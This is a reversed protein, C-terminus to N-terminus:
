ALKTCHGDTEERAQNYTAPSTFNVSSFLCLNAQVLVMSNDFSKIGTSSCGYYQGCVSTIHQQIQLGPYGCEPDGMGSMHLQFLHQSSSIKRRPGKLSLQAIRGELNESSPDESSMHLALESLSSKKERSPLSKCSSHRSNPQLIGTSFFPSYFLGSQSCKGSSQACWHNESPHFFIRFQGNNMFVSHTKLNLIYVHCFPSLNLHSLALAKYVASTLLDMSPLCKGHLQFVDPGYSGPPPFDVSAEVLM